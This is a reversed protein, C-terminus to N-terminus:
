SAEETMVEEAAATSETPEDTAGRRRKAAAKPPPEVWVQHLNPNFDEQNITMPEGSAPNIVEMTPLPEFFPM